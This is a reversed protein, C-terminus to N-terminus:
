RVAFWNPRWGATPRNSRGGLPETCDTLALKPALLVYDFQDADICPLRDQSLRITSERRRVIKAAVCLQPNAAVCLPSACERRRRTFVGQEKYFVGRIV